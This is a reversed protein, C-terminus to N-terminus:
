IETKLKQTKQRLYRWKRWWNRPFVVMARLAAWGPVWRGLGTYLRGRGEKFKEVVEALQVKLENKTGDNWVVFGRKKRGEGGWCREVMEVKDPISMQSKVRDEADERTLTGRNERDRALLREIQLDQDRLGVVIVGGCILDLGSEFLLPVDLVIAWHGKAWHKLIEWIIMNRVIPHIIRNMAARNKAKEPGAGFVRRGLVPRNIHM